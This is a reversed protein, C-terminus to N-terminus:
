PDVSVTYVDNCMRAQFPKLNKTSMIVLVAFRRRYQLLKLGYSIGPIKTM